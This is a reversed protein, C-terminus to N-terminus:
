RASRRWSRPTSSATATPMSRKRAARRALGAGGADLQSTATAHRIEQAAAAPLSRNAARRSLVTPSRPWRRDAPGDALGAAVAMPDPPPPPPFFEQFSVCQDGDEDKSLILDAAAALEAMDLVGSSDADLLKFVELDNQSSHPRRPYAVLEGGIRTSRRSWTAAADHGDPRAPRRPVRRRGAARPASCRRAIPRTATLKGDNDADLSEISRSRCLARRAEALSVGGIALNLRLHLPGQGAAAAVDRRDAPQQSLEAPRPQSSVAAAAAGSPM